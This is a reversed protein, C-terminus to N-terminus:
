GNKEGEEDHSIKEFLSTYYDGIGKLGFGQNEIEDNYDKKEFQGNQKLIWQAWEKAGEQLSLFHALPTLAIKKDIVDSFVCVTGSAQAEVGAYPLGEYLSPLLFLDFMQYYRSVDSVNGILFVSDELDYEKIKEMIQPRLEGDGVLVLRSNRMKSHVNKFIDLLFPHNKQKRFGGVHGIVLEDTINYKTRLENRIQNNLKFEQLDIGNNIFIAKRYEDGYMYQAAVDSCTFLYDCRKKVIKSLFNHLIFHSSSSNHSHFLIKIEKKRWIPLTYLITSAHNAHCYLIKYEPHMKYFKFIQIGFAIPNKVYYPLHYINSKNNKFYEEYTPNIGHYCMIDLIYQTRDLSESLNKIFKETGGMEGPFNVILIREM